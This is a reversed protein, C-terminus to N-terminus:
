YKKEEKAAPTLTYSVHCPDKVRNILTRDDLHQFYFLINSEGKVQSNFKMDQCPYIGSSHGLEIYIVNAYWFIRVIIIFLIFIFLVFLICVIVIVYLLVCVYM